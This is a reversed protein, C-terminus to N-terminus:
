LLKGPVEQETWALIAGPLTHALYILSGALPVTIAFGPNGVLRFLIAHALVIVLCIITFWAYAYRLATHTIQLEREDLTDMSAHTLKWLGTQRHLPFFTIFVICLTALGVADVVHNREPQGSVLYFCGNMIILLSYNIIVLAKRSSITQMAM